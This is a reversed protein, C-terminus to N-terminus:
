PGCQWQGVYSRKAGDARDYTLTAPRPPSEGGGIAPGTVEIRVTKGAGSFTVGPLMADFGGPAAVAEVYSGVKVVGRSPEDSAVNGKALLLAEDQSAFSCGLEGPLAAGQVDEQTLPSLEVPSGDGGITTGRAGTPAVADPAASMGEARGDETGPGDAPATAPGAADQAPDLRGQAAPDPDSCGAALSALALALVVPSGRRLSRPQFRM